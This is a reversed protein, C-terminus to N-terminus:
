RSLSKEKGLIPQCEDFDARYFTSPLSATISTCNTSSEKNLTVSLLDAIESLAHAISFSFHKM